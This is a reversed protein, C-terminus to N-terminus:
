RGLRKALLDQVDRWIIGALDDENMSGDLRAIRDPEATALDDFAKAVRDYFAQGAQEMRDPEPRM